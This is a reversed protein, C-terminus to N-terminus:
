SLTKDVLYSSIIMHRATRASSAALATNVVASRTWNDPRCYLADVRQWVQCYAAFDALM